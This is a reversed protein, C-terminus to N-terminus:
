VAFELMLQEYKDFEEPEEVVVVVPGKAMVRTVFYGVRNVHRYGTDIYLGGEDGEVLTWVNGVGHSRVFDLEKGYTEFMYGNCSASPDLHNEIPLYEDFWEDYDLYKM